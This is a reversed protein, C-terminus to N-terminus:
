PQPVCPGDVVEPITVGPVQKLLLHARAIARGEDGHEELQANAIRSWVKRKTKTDARKTFEKAQKPTWPM